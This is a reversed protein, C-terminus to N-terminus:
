RPRGPAEQAQRHPWPRCQRARAEQPEQQARCLACALSSCPQPPKCRLQPMPGLMRRRWGARRGAVAGRIAGEAALFCEPQGHVGCCGGALAMGWESSVMQPCCSWFGFKPTTNPHLASHLGACAPPSGWAPLRSPRPSLRRSSEGQALDLKSSPARPEPPGSIHQQRRSPIPPPSDWSIVVASGRPGPHRWAARRIANRANWLRDFPGM